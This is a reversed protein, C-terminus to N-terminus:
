SQGAGALSWLRGCKQCGALLGSLVRIPIVPAACACHLAVELGEAAQERWVWRTGTESPQAVIM